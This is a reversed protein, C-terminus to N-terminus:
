EPFQYPYTMFDIGKKTNGEFDFFTANEWSSGNGWPTKLESSIWAPEWVMLGDGGAKIVKDTLAVYFDYQGKETFPYGAIAPQNGFLNIYNDAGQITWPYVTEVVMVKRQYRNKFRTIANGVNALPTDTHWLPYYSFGVIDFDTVKAQQIVQDFWWEVHRPEAIHLIIQTKIASQSSVDRVAKIGMNLIEGLAEWNGNCANLDPFAAPASTILLGCNIENGIQVMEPMLGQSDLYKLTRYTFQYVSDKLVQLSNISQWESPVDQHSPDAWTDSYHFDLNVGMGLSKARRISKEVDALDSYMQTGEAGYVEKTWLPHNWLRIRVLNCGHNKFILYPDVIKGSDRYIGGHDQVENVYSLDAGMCFKDLTYFVKDSTDTPDPIVPDDTKKTCSSLLFLALCSLLLFSKM